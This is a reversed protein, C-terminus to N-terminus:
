NGDLIEMEEFIEKISGIFDKPHNTFKERLEDKTFWKVQEVENEQIKFENIPKDINASYIQVFYKRKGTDRFNKQSKILDLNELGIEEEIEKAINEEYTEGEEVTGAVAPGWKGPSHAPHKNFSRQALLIEGKSNTLWLGSVRYIDNHTIDIREKVGIENDNEDVVIIKSM